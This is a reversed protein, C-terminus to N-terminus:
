AVVLATAPATRTAAGGNPVARKAGARSTVPASLMDRRTSNKPKPMAYHLAPPEVRGYSHPWHRSAGVVPAAIGAMVVLLPQAL